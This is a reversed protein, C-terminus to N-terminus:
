EDIWDIEEPTTSAEFLDLLYQVEDLRDQYTQKFHELDWGIGSEEIIREMVADSLALITNLNDKQTQLYTKPINSMKEWKRIYAPGLKQYKIEGM